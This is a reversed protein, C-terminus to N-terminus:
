ADCRANQRHQQRAPPVHVQAHHHLRTRSRRRVCQLSQDGGIAWAAGGGRRGSRRAGGADSRRRDIGGFRNCAGALASGPRTLVAYGVRADRADAQRAVLGLKELPLLTRTVGSATLGLREALDIRRLRAGPARQLYYLVMFDGFSLGHVSGLANDLRRTLVAYARALRLCCELAASPAVTSDAQEAQASRTM